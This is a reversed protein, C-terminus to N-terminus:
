EVKVYDIEYTGHSVWKEWMQLKHFQFKIKDVTGTWLPHDSLVWTLYTWGEDWDPEPIALSRRQSFHDKSSDSWFLRGDWGAGVGYDTYRNQASWAATRRIRISVRTKEAAVWDAAALASSIEKKFRLSHNTATALADKSLNFTGSGVSEVTTGSDIVDFILVGLAPSSTATAAASMVFTNSGSNISDVTAGSPIGKGTVSMGVILDSVDDLTVTASAGVVTAAENVIAGEVEMGVEISGISDLTVAQSGDTTDCTANYIETDYVKTSRCLGVHRQQPEGVGSAGTGALSLTKAAGDRTVTASAVGDFKTELATSQM